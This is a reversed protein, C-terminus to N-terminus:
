GCIGSGYTTLKELLGLQMACLMGVLYTLNNEKLHIGLRASATLPSAEALTESIQNVM